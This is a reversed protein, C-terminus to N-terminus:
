DEHVVGKRDNTVGPRDSEGLLDRILRSLQVEYDENRRFDLYLTDALHNPPREGSRLIGIIRFNGDKYRRANALQFEFKVVSRSREDAEVAAVSAPTILFLMARSRFIATAGFDGISDGLHLEWQDLLANIGNRRLDEALKRVWERHEESEHRYSIFVEPAIKHEAELKLKIRILIHELDHWYSDPAKQIAEDIKAVDGALYALKAAIILRSGVDRPTDGTIQLRIRELTAEDDIAELAQYVSTFSVTSTAAAEIAKSDNQLISIRTQLFITQWYRDGLQAILGKLKEVDRAGVAASEIPGELTLYREFIPANEVTRDLRKLAKERVSEGGSDLIHKLLDQNRLPFPELAFSMAYDVITDFSHVKFIVKPSEVSLPGVFNLARTSFDEYRRSGLSRRGIFLTVSVEEISSGANLYQIQSTSHYTAMRQLLLRMSELIRLASATFQKNQTLLEDGPTGFVGTELECTPVTYTYSSTAFDVGLSEALQRRDLDKGIYNFYFDRFRDLQFDDLQANLEQFLATSQDVYGENPSM